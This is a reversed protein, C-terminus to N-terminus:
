TLVGNFIYAYQQLGVGCLPIVPPSSPPNPSCKEYVNAPDTASHISLSLFYSKTDTGGTEVDYKRQHQNGVTINFPSKQRVEVHATHGFTHPRSVGRDM